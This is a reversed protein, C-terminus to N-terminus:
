EFVNPLTKPTHGWGFPGMATRREDYWKYYGWYSQAMKKAMPDRAALKEIYEYVGSRIKELDDASYVTIEIGAEELKKMAEVNAAEVRSWSWWYTYRGVVEMLEQLDEPLADWAKKNIAFGCACMPQHWGPVANYKTIEHVGTRYDDAPTALEAGDLTGRELATYIESTAMTLPRGGLKRVAHQAPKTGMRVKLGKFDEVSRIPKNSRIGSEMSIVNEVIYHMNNQGYIELLLDRGGRHWWWLDNDMPNHGFAVSFLLDLAPMGKGSWYGPYDSAMDLVGAKVADFHEKYPVISGSAHLEIQLRGNSLKNVLEVFKKDSDALTLTPPWISQAKWIYVKEGNIEKVKFAQVSTAAVGFILALSCILTAIVLVNKKM